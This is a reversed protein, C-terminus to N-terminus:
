IWNVLWFWVSKVTFHHRGFYGRQIQLGVRASNPKSTTTLRNLGSRGITSMFANSHKLTLIIQKKEKQKIARQMEQKTSKWVIINNCHQVIGQVLM